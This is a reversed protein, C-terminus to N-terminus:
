RLRPNSAGAGSNCQQIALRLAAFARDTEADRPLDFQVFAPFETRSGQISSSRELRIVRPSAGTVVVRSIDSSSTISAQVAALSFQQDYEETWSQRGNGSDTFRDFDLIQASCDQFIRVDRVTYIRERGNEVSRVTRGIFGSAISSSLDSLSRGVIPVPFSNRERGFFPRLPSGSFFREGYVRDPPVYTGLRLEEVVLGFVDEWADRKVTGGTLLTALGLQNLVPNVTAAKLFEDKALGLEYAATVSDVSKAYRESLEAIPEVGPKVGTKLVAAQFRDQDELLLKKMVENEVYLAEAYSQEYPSLSQLTARVNDTFSRM